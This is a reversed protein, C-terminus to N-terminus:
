RRRGPQLQFSSLIRLLTARMRAYRRDYSATLRWIMGHTAFSVQEETYHGALGQFDGRMLAHRQGM